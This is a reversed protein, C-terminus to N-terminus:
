GRWIPRNNSTELDMALMKAGTLDAGNLQVTGALAQTLDAGSLDAGNFRSEFMWAHKLNSGRLNARRVDARNINAKELNAGSIDAGNLIAGHLKAGALNAGALNAGTLDTRKLDAGQLDCGPCNRAREVLLEKESPGPDAMAEIRALDSTFDSLLMEYRTTAEFQGTTPLHTLPNIGHQGPKRYNHAEITITASPDSVPKECVRKEYRSLFDVEGELRPLDRCTWGDGYRGIMFGALDAGRERFEISARPDTHMRIGVLFGDADFLGSAIVPIEYASTYQYLATQVDLSHARAWISWSTM